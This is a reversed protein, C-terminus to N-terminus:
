QRNSNIENTTLQQKLKEILDLLKQSLEVPYTPAYTLTKYKAPLESLNQAAVAQIQQLPPLNYLSKGKEMIKILLPEGGGIM